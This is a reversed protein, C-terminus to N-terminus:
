AKDKGNGTGIEILKEVIEAIKDSDLDEYKVEIM